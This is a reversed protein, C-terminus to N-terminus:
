VVFGMFLRVHTLAAGDIVLVFGGPREGNNHGVLSSVGTNVRQLPFGTTQQQESEDLGIGEEQLIGSEPFFQEVANLMQMYVPTAGEGGGRIIVINDDRGILNTSHGIAIATELKDGTLVWIKIDAEKLDAITEPVGDQLRDEIATAGLLRLDHEIEDSIAEVKDERNDLSVTAEHYRKAWSEYQSETSLHDTDM